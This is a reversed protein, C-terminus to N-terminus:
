NLSPDAPSNALIQYADGLQRVSSKWIQDPQQHFVIEKHAPTVLWSRAKMEQDLQGEEWGAYGLFFRIKKPCLQKARLLEIVDTFTGGWYIGNGLATGDPIMEPEQHIFHLTDKQVPGGDFVPLDMGAYDPILDGVTLDASKNVVFGFSGQQSHDCMLVVTRVFNPDKLFPEAILLMGSGPAYM